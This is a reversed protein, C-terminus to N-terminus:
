PFLGGMDATRPRPEPTQSTSFLQTVAQRDQGISSALIARDPSRALVQADIANKGSIESGQGRAGHESPGFLLVWLVLLLFGFSGLTLYAVKGGMRAPKYVAGFVLVVILWAFLMASTWVIPDSWAVTADGRADAHHIQNLIVGSILGVGVLLTSIVLARSNAHQLWELSPLRFRESPPRKHKLRWAQVLYMLGSAFGVLVVVTGMLLAGGHILLWARNAQEAPVPSKDGVLYAAAILGLVLPLLFVGAAIRPHSCVLYFYTVALVWAAMLYWHHWSSLPTAAPGVRAENVLYVTHTLLGLIAFLLLLAGRVGSRFWLRSIELLLVVSYSAAFCVVSIGSLAPV